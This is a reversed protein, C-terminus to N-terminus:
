RTPKKFSKRFLQPTGGQRRRLELGRTHEGGDATPPQSRIM